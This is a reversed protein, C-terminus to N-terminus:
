SASHDPPAPLAKRYHITEPEYGLADYVARARTNQWFVNLTIHPDGRQEAWREAAALLSRGVGRREIRPDVALVEVHAHRAHTFYDTKTSVFVYGAPAGAPEEAVLIATDDTPHHLADLLIRHDAEAIERPTRWAPVSFEALRTTLAILVPEDAAVAPRITPVDANHWCAHAGANGM